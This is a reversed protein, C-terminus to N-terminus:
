GQVLYHELEHRSSSLLVQTERLNLYSEREGEAVAVLMEPVDENLYLMFQQKISGKRCPVPMGYVLQDFVASINAPRTELSKM